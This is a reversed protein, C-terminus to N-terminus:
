WTYIPEPTSGNNYKPDFYIKCAECQRLYDRRAQNPSYDHAIEQNNVGDLKHYTEISGDINYHYLEAIKEKEKVNSYSILGGQQNYSKSIYNRGCNAFTTKYRLRWGKALAVRYLSDYTKQARPDDPDYIDDAIKNFPLDMALWRKIETTDYYSMRTKAYKGKYRVVYILQGSVSYIKRYGIREGHAFKETIYVQGTPYFIQRVGSLEGRKFKQIIEPHGNNYKLTDAVSYNKEPNFLKRLLALRDFGTFYQWDRLGAASRYRVNYNCPYIEIKNKKKVGFFLWEEGLSIGLDCSSNVDPETILNEKEGKFLEIIEIKVDGDRRGFDSKKVDSLNLSSVKAFAIFDFSKLDDKNKFESIIACHCAIASLNIFTLIITILSKM